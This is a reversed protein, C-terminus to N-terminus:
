RCLLSLYIITYITPKGSVSFLEKEFKNMSADSQQFYAYLIQLIKIRLIRRSIM